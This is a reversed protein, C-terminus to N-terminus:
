GCCRGDSDEKQVRLYKKTVLEPHLAPIVLDSSTSLVLIEDSQGHLQSGGGCDGM